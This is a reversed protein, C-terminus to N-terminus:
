LVKKIILDSILKKVNKSFFFRLVVAVLAWFGGVILFGYYIKDLMEGLWYSVAMSLILLCMLVVVVVILRLILSSAAEIGKEATKLKLIELSTKAYEETRHFLAELMNSSDDM